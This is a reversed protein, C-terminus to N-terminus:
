VAATIDSTTKWTLKIANEEDTDARKIQTYTGKVVNGNEYHWSGQGKPQNNDFAGEFYTGNSYQWKGNIMQGNKFTGVYKMGTQKFIYTGAGDKKGEKWQGSYVDQNEYIMVGEGHRKGDKWYGHYQGVGTYVQVGIGNKDNNAWSGKYTDKPGEETGYKNYTYTGTQGEGTHRVGEKFYGDYIDGNPYTAV